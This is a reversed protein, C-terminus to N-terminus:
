CSCPPFNSYPQQPQEIDVKNETEGIAVEAQSRKNEQTFVKDLHEKIMTTEKVDLISPECIEM